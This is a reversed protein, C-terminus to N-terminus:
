YDKYKDMWSPWANPPLCKVWEKHWKLSWLQKLGVYRASMDVFTANIGGNHRDLSHFKMAETYYTSDLYRDEEHEQDTPASNDERPASEVYASDLVIPIRAAGVADTKRVALISELSWFYEEGIPPDACWDNFGYSGTALHDWWFDHSGSTATFPGWAVFTGGHQRAVPPRNLVKTLPCMRMDLDRYYPLTAGLMWADLETVGNGAISQPFSDENDNAYLSFVLGWQKLNSRCIVAQAQLKAKGLSPGLIALLLAIIAIVVLLEILTFGKQRRAKGNM